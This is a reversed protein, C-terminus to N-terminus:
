PAGSEDLQEFMKEVQAATRKEYDDQARAIKIVNEARAKWYYFGIATAAPGMVGPIVYALPATDNTRWMLACAFAVVLAAISLLAALIVKSTEAKKRKKM